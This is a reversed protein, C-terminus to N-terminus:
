APHRARGPLCIREPCLPCIAPFPQPRCFIASSPRPSNSVAPFPSPHHSVGPSALPHCLHYGIFHSPNKRLHMIEDHSTSSTCASPSYNVITQRTRVKQSTTRRILRLFLSESGYKMENKGLSPCTPPHRVNYITRLLSPSM